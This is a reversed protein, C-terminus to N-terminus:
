RARNQRVRRIVAAALVLRYAAYPLLSRDREVQRILWTSALTGDSSKWQVIETKGLALSAVQPNIDTLKRPADFTLDASIAPCMFNYCEAVFRLM